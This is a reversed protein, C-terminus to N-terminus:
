LFPQKLWQQWSWEPPKAFPIASWWPLDELSVPPADAIPEAQSPEPYAWGDIPKPIHHAAHYDRHKQDLWFLTEGPLRWAFPGTAKSLQTKASGFDEKAALAIALNHQASANFPFWKAVREWRKEALEWQGKKAARNGRRVGWAGLQFFPKALRVSDKVVYPALSKWAERASAAILLESDNDSFRAALDPYDKRAQATNLNYVRSGLTSGTETEIIRWSLLVSENKSSEERRQFFVQNMNVKEPPGTGLEDEITSSLIEGQLLLEAGVVEAAKLATLDSSLAATSALRIPSKHALQEATFLAIDSRSAPRQELLQSQIKAALLADGALPALAVKARRTETSIEAPTWVHVPVTSRCGGLALALM